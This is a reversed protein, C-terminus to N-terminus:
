DPLEVWDDTEYSWVVGLNHKASWLGEGWAFEVTKLACVLEIMHIGGQQVRVGGFSRHPIDEYEEDGFMREFGAFVNYTYDDNMFTVGEAISRGVGPWPRYDVTVIPESLTLEPPKGVTGFRYFTTQDDFCVRLSKTSNEIQCTMFAEEGALCAAWAPNTFAILALVYKM